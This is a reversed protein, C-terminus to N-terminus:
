KGELTEKFQSESIFCWAVGSSFNKISQDQCRIQFKEECPYRWDSNTEVKTTAVIYHLGGNSACLKEANFFIYDHIINSRTTYHACGTILLVLAALKM